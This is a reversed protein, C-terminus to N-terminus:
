CIQDQFKRDDHRQISCFFQWVLWFFSIIFSRWDNVALFRYFFAITLPIGFRYQLQAHGMQATTPLGFTFILACIACSFSSPGFMRIAIYSAIFNIFFGCIFWFQFAGEPTFGAFRSVIYPACAGFLNDSFGLVFPFPYFFSLHVLSSSKGVIFLYINELFYNNLRPDIMDGPMNAFFDLQRLPGFVFAVCFIVIGLYCKRLDIKNHFNVGLSKLLNTFLILERIVFLM